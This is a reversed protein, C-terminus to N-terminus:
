WINETLYKHAAEYAEEYGDGMQRYLAQRMEYPLGPFCRYCFSREPKKEKGCLCEESRLQGLYWMWDKQKKSQVAPANAKGRSGPGQVKSGKVTYESYKM